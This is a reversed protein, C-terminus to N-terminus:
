VSEALPRVRHQFGQFIALSIEVGVERKFLVNVLRGPPKAELTQRGATNRFPFEYTDLAVGAM